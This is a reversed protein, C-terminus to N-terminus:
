MKGRNNSENKNECPDRALYQSIKKRNYITTNLFSLILPVIDMKPATCLIIIM